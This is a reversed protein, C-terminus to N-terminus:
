EPIFLGSLLLVAIILLVLGVMLGIIGFVINIILDGKTYIISLEEPNQPNYRIIIESGVNLNKGLKDSNKNSDIIKFFTRNNIDKYEITYYNVEVTYYGKSSRRTITKTEVKIIKANAKLYYFYNFINKYLQFTYYIFFLAAIFFPLGFFLYPLKNRKM